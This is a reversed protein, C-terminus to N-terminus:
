SPQDSSTSSLIPPPFTLCWGLWSPGEALEDILSVGESTTGDHLQNQEVRLIFYFMKPELEVRCLSSSFIEGTEFPERRFLDKFYTKFM